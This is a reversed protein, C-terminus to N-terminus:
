HIIGCFFFFSFNLTKGQPSYRQEKFFGFFEGGAM